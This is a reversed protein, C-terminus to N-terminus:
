PSRRTCSQAYRLAKVRAQQRATSAEDDPEPSLPKDARPGSAVVGQAKLESGQAKRWSDATADPSPPTIFISPEYDPNIEVRTRAADNGVKVRTPLMIGGIEEYDSLEYVFRIDGPLKVDPRPPPLTIPTITEIRVPLHTDIDLDVVIVDVDFVAEIRDVTERGLRVRSARTPTPRVASTELFYVYQRQRVRAALGTYRRMFPRPAGGLTSWGLGTQANAVTVSYGMKGPRYDVFEWWLDPLECLIQHVRGPAFEPLPKRFTTREHIAFSRIALLRERGGKAAIAQEWLAVATEDVQQNEASVATLFLLSLLATNFLHRM